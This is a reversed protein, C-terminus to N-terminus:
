SAGRNSLGQAPSVLGRRHAFLILDTTRHLGLKSLIRSRYNDITKISLYMAAAIDKIREGNALRYFVQSERDSLARLEDSQNEKNIVQALVLDKSAEDLFLRGQAVSRIAKHLEQATIRKTVYGLAGLNFSRMAYQEEPYVTLILIKAGPSSLIIQKCIDLGDTPPMSIDLVAVDPSTRRFEKVAEEGRSAEAVVTIDPAEELLRRIGARVLDHDDALLVSIM